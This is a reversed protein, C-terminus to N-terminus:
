QAGECFQEWERYPAVPQGSALHTARMPPLLPTGTHDFVAIYAESSCENLKTCAVSKDDVSDAWTLLYRGNAARMASSGEATRTLALAESETTGFMVKTDEEYLRAFSQDKQWAGHGFRAFNRDIASLAQPEGLAEGEMTLRSLYLGMKDNPDSGYSADASVLHLENGVKAASGLSQGPVTFEIPSGTPAGENDLKTARVEGAGITWFVWWGDATDILLSEGFQTAIENPQGLPEGQLDLIQILLPKNQAESGEFALAARDGHRALQVVYPNGPATSIVRTKAVVFGEDTATVMKVEVSRKGVAGPTHAILAGKPVPLFEVYGEQSIVASPEGRPQGTGDLRQLFVEETRTKKGEISQVHTQSYVLLYGDGDDFLAIPSVSRYDHNARSKLQQHRCQWLAPEGGEIRLPTETSTVTLPTINPLGEAEYRLRALYSGPLASKLVPQPP